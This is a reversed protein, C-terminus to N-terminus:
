TLNENWSGKGKDVKFEKGLMCVLKDWSSFDVFNRQPDWRTHGNEWKM